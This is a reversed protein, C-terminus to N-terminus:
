AESADRKRCGVAGTQGSGRGCTCVMEFLRSSFTFRKFTPSLFSDEDTTHAEEEVPALELRLDFMKERDTLESCRLVVGEIKVVWFDGFGRWRVEICTKCFPVPVSRHHFM